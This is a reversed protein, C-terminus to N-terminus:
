ERPERYKPTKGDKQPNQQKAPSRAPQPPDNSGAPGDNDSLNALWDPEPDPTVLQYVLYFIWLLFGALIAARVYQGSTYTTWVGWTLVPALGVILLIRYINLDHKIYQEKMRDPLIRELPKEIEWLGYLTMLLIGTTGALIYEIDSNVLGIYLVAISFFFVLIIGARFYTQPNITNDPPKFGGRDKGTM